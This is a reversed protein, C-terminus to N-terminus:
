KGGNLIKRNKKANFGNVITAALDKAFSDENWQPMETANMGEHFQKRKRENIRM